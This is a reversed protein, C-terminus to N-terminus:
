RCQEILQAADHSFRDELKKRDPGVCVLSYLWLVAVSPPQLPSSTQFNQIKPLLSVKSDLLYRFCLRQDAAGKNEFYIRFDPKRM